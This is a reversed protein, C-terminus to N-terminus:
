KSNHLVPPAGFYSPYNNDPNVVIKELVIEPDIMIVKLTHIGPEKVDIEFDLWRMNDFIENRRFQGAGILAINKNIAPYPKLVSSRALIEPTYEKFEDHFGKRADLVQPTQDDLTVGIRLGRQPYVDQTPLIGLCVTSKGTTPLFVKYELTAGDETTINRATVYSIGMNAKGKGLDPLVIWKADKGPKNANFQYAPITFEGTFNGFFPEKLKPLAAKVANVSVAIIENDKKIEVIGTSKGESLKKWDVDVLIRVDKEVKGKNSSLKIWPQNAKAEFEFSGTGRNFVDIYYSQKKLIDFVPLQLKEQNAPWAAESGETAIGMAPEALRMVEKLEPLKNEKPMQWTTYGIHIDSMMNKWKGNSMPGNYYDSLKKDLAFLDKAKQAYDNASVRGQKAYLQNKGASLYIEAVGASAKTPYLVLQYYTDKLEPAIKAELAEAKATVDKWLQLMRDAENHNVYSFIQPTQVEAKRLLNYKSYKSVIDAIEEAHEKGFIGKAWNITYDMTKSAPYADPNWAFHMIFDIPLEKPKLDGVNVIWIRDLGSQYALNFQEQLKPITTTNVWRDNNPGGNMDIHYYLGSGGKRNKEKPPAIRRIYGWNNDCFLLTIDDPVNFGADYYRQVETFIAWLQPHNAPDDNYVKQIIDRQSKIVNELTKINDLDNGKGMAVDGDGRMSMTILNEYNKNRNLGEFWFKELNTSNKVFDWDGIEQKRKTYEKQSRMMPEHHSTGMVIGYEDALAPSMPDDENFASSWMAPWMYNAKLRLLLEFMNVYMKSNIGGFKISAWGGFSPWEDNIFIGRYKVKPSEQVYRGAKVFLQNSKKAPVDAWFYWPSVGIKESMDYIGYITGRKDSGAVVLNGDVTQIIFSEWQGKIESVDIKKDAILQDIIKSKGITGILIAGKAPYISKHFIDPKIQSVKRVDDALDNAARIVGKWDSDDLYISASKGNVVISFANKSAKYEVYQPPTKYDSKDAAIVQFPKFLMIGLILLIAKLKNLNM